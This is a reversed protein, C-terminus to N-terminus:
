TGPGAPSPRRPRLTRPAADAERRLLVAPGPRCWGCDGGFGAAYGRCLDRHQARRPGQRRRPSSALCANPLPPTTEAHPTRRVHRRNQPSRERRGPKHADGASKTTIAPYHAHKADELPPLTAHINRRRDALWQTRAVSGLTASMLLAYGGADLHANLLEKLIRRMYADSAHVEDVVLLNRALCAARLHAHKVKLAGMMAQDVTGVAIQAALYRKSNESAWPKDSKEEDGHGAAHSDYLHMAIAEADDDPGYGPVALVVKPAHGEPFFKSAFKEVRGHLQVAASRTPLAFYLGDVLGDRYMRAFRWLAAETKGSGTESEIIVLPENLPTDQAATQIANPAFGFLDSFTRESTSAVAERQESINLKVGERVAKEAKERAKGIYHDDPVGVYPFWGDRDNSGIWDALICLGLFMHQFAPKSPLPHITPDFARPFWQRALAAIHRVKEEPVLVGYSRWIIPNSNLDDLQIPSGHHSLAALLLGCVAEGTEGWGLM